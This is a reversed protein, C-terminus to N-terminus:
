ITWEELKSEKVEMIGFRLQLDVMTTQIPVHRFVAVGKYNVMDCYRREDDAVALYVRGAGLDYFQGARFMVEYNSHRELMHSDIAYRMHGNHMAGPMKPKTVVLNKDIEFGTVTGVYNNDKRKVDEGISFLETCVEHLNDREVVYEYLTSHKGFTNVEKVLVADRFSEHKISQDIIMVQKGNTFYLNAM